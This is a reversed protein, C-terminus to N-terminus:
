PGPVPQRACISTSGPSFIEVNAAVIDSVTCRGDGNGDCLPTVQAPLFIAKNIAVLDMVTNRGDANQDTCECADGRGDGDTDMRNATPFFPCNDAGDASGDDDRDIV